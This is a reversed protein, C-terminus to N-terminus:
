SGWSDIRKDTGASALQPCSITGITQSCVSCFLVFFCSCCCFSLTLLGSRLPFLQMLCLFLNYATEKTRERGCAAPRHNNRTGVRYSIKNNIGLEVGLKSSAGHRRLHSGVGKGLESGKQSFDATVHLVVLCSQACPM